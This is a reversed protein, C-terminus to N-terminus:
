VAIFRSQDATYLTSWNTASTWDSYLASPILFKAGCSTFASTNALSPVVTQGSFDITPVSGCGNFSNAAISTVNDFKLTTSLRYCQQFTAGNIQTAISGISQYFNKIEVLNWCKEFMSATYRRNVFRAPNIVKVSILGTYLNASNSSDVGKSLDLCYTSSGFGYQQSSCLPTSLNGSGFFRMREVISNLATNANVKYCAVKLMSSNPPVIGGFRGIMISLNHANGWDTSAINPYNLPWIINTACCYRHYSALPGTNANNVSPPVILTGFMRRGTGHHFAWYTPTGGVKIKYSGVNAYVHNLTADKVSKDTTGDGWNYTCNGSDLFTVTTNPNSIYVNVEGKGDTPTYCAGVDAWDNLAQLEALDLSWTAFTLNEHQPLLATVKSYDSWEAVESPLAKYILTGDYDFFRIYELLDDNTFSIVRPASQVEVKITAKRMGDYGEQPTVVHTGNTEITANHNTELRVDGGGGGSKSGQGIILGM